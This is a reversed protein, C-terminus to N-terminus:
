RDPYHNGNGKSDYQIHLLQRQKYKKEGMTTGLTHLMTGTQHKNAM